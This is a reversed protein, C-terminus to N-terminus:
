GDGSGMFTLTDAIVTHVAHDSCEGALRKEVRKRFDIRVTASLTGAASEILYRQRETLYPRRLLM